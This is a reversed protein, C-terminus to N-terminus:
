SAGRPPVERGDEYDVQASCAPCWLNLDDSECRSCHGYGVMKHCQGNCPQVGIYVRGGRVPQLQGTM